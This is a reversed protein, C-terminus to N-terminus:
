ELELYSMLFKVEQQIPIYLATSNDLTQRVLHSFSLLFKEANQQDKEVVLQQMVNVCNFIFHPNMQARLAMQELELLKIEQRLKEVQKQKLKGLHRNYFFLIAAILAVVALVIFWTTLYFPKEVSFNIRVPKSEKGFKNIAVIELPYNGYPLSTFELSNLSTTRWD